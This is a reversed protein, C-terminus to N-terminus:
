YTLTMFFPTHECADNGKCGDTKVCMCVDGTFNSTHSAPCRFQTTADGQSTSGTASPSEGSKFSCETREPSTTLLGGTLDLSCSQLASGAAPDGPGQPAHQSNAEPAEPPELQQHQNQNSPTLLGPPVLLNQPLLEVQQGFPIIPKICSVATIPRSTRSTSRNVVTM